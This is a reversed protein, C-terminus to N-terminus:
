GAPKLIRKQIFQRLTEGTALEIVRGLVDLGLGYEYRAGPQFLLPKESLADCLKQLTNIEGSDQRLAIDKYMKESITKAVLPIGTDVVGPGYGLGSTHMM